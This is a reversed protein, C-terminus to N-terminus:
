ELNFHSILLAVFNMAPPPGLALSANPGFFSRGPPDVLRRRRPARNSVAGFDTTGHGFTAVSAGSPHAFLRVRPRCQGRLRGLSASLHGLLPLKPPRAATLRSVPHPKFCIWGLHAWMRNKRQSFSVAFLRRVQPSTKKFLIFILTKKKLSFLDALGCSRRSTPLAPLRLHARTPLVGATLRAGGCLGTPARAEINAEEPARGPRGPPWFTSAVLCAVGLFCEVDLVFSCCM